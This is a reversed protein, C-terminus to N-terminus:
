DDGVPHHGNIFSYDLKIKLKIGNKRLEKYVSELTMKDWRDDGHGGALTVAAKLSDLFRDLDWERKREEEEKTIKVDKCM